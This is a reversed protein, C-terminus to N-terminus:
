NLNMHMQEMKGSHSINEIYGTTLSKKIHCIYRMVTKTSYIYISSLSVYFILKVFMAQRAVACFIGKGLFFHFKPRWKVFPAQGLRFIRKQPLCWGFDQSACYKAEPFVMRKEDVRIIVVRTYTTLMNMWSMM